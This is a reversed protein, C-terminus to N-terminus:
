RLWATRPRLTQYRGLRRFYKSNAKALLLDVYLNTGKVYGSDLIRQAVLSAGLADKTQVFRRLAPLYHIVDGPFNHPARWSRTGGPEKLVAEIRDLVLIAEDRKARAALTGALLSLQDVRPEIGFRLMESFM